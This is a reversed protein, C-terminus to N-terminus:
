FCWVYEIIFTYFLIKFLFNNAIWWRAHSNVIRHTRLLSSPPYGYTRRTTNAGTVVALELKKEREKRKMKIIWSDSWWQLSWLINSFHSPLRTHLHVSSGFNLIPVLNANARFNYPWYPLPLSTINTFMGLSQVVTRSNYLCDSSMGTHRPSDTFFFPILGYPFSPYSPLQKLNNIRKRMNNKRPLLPIMRWSSKPLKFFAWLWNLINKM